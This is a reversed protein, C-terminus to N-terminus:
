GHGVPKHTLQGRQRRGVLFICEDHEVGYGLRPALQWREGIVVSAAAGHEAEFAIRERSQHGDHVSGRAGEPHKKQVAPCHLRVRPEEHLFGRTACPPAQRVQRLLKAYSNRFFSPLLTGSVATNKRPCNYAVKKRAELLVRRSQKLRSSSEHLSTRATGRHLGSVGSVRLKGDGPVAQEHGAIHNSPGHRARLESSVRKEVVQCM